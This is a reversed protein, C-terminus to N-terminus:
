HSAYVHAAGGRTFAVVDYPDRTPGEMGPSGMPMGPVALGTVAPREALLRRVDAAPVHGELVYGGVTATHCSAHDPRVGLRDKIPTVDATDIAVVRFGHERMHDVWANCCGCTPTKYVTLRSTDVAHAGRAVPAAAAAHAFTATEPAAAPQAVRGGGDRAAEADRESAAGSCAAAGVLCLIAGARTWVRGASEYAM